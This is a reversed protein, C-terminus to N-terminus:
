IKPIYNNENRKVIQLNNYQNISYINLFYFTLSHKVFSLIDEYKKNDVLCSM